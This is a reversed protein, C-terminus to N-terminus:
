PGGQPRDVPAAASPHRVAEVGDGLNGALEAELRAMLEAALVPALSLVVGDEAVAGSEM